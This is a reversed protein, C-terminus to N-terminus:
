VGAIKMAALYGTEFHAIFDREKVTFKKKGIPTTFLIMSIINFNTEIDSGFKTNFAARLETRFGDNLKNYLKSTISV